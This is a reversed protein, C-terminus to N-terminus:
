SPKKDTEGRKKRRDLENVAYGHLNVMSRAFKKEAQVKKRVTKKNRAM